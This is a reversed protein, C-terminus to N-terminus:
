SARGIQQSRNTATGDATGPQAGVRVLEFRPPQQAGAPRDADVVFVDDLDHQFLRVAVEGLEDNVGGRMRGLRHDIGELDDSRAAGDDEGAQLTVTRDDAEVGVPDEALLDSYAPYPGCARFRAPYGHGHESLGPLGELQ